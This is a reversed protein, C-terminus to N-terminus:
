CRKHAPRRYHQRVRYIKGARIRRYRRVHIRKM